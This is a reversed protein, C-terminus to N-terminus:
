TDFLNKKTKKADREEIALFSGGSASYWVSNKELFISEEGPM